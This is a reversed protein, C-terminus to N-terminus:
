WPGSLAQEEWQHDETNTPFHSPKMNTPKMSTYFYTGNAHIHKALNTKSKEKYPSRLMVYPLLGNGM